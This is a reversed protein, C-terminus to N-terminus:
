LREEKDSPVFYKFFYNLDKDNKIQSFLEPNTDELRKISDHLYHTVIQTQEAYDRAEKRSITTGQASIVKNKMNEFNHIVDVIQTTVINREQLYKLVANLEFASGEMGLSEAITLVVEKLVLWAALVIETSSSENVTNTLLVQSRDIDTDIQPIEFITDQTERLQDSFEVIVGPAQVRKLKFTRLLEKIEERFMCVILFVVTPWTLVSVLTSLFELITM